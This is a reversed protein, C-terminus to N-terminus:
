RGSGFLECIWAWIRSLSESGHGLAVLVDMGLVLYVLLQLYLAHMSTSISSEGLWQLSRKAGVSIEAGKMQHSADADRYRPSEGKEM